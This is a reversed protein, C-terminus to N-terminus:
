ARLPVVKGTGIPPTKIKRARKQAAEQKNRDKWVLIQPESIGKWNNTPPADRFDGIWTLRYTNPEHGGKYAIGRDVAIFGLYEAERIAQAVSALRIGYEAFQAHTVILEGNAEGGHAMHEELVRFLVNKGNGSLARFAPSNILERTFWGWAESAPPGHHKRRKGVPRRQGRRASEHPDTGM